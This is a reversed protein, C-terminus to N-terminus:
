TKALAAMLDGKKEFRAIATKITFKKPDLGPTVEKWDLPTSVTAQPTPRLVYPPVAHHGRANQIVDVYVRGDRENKLREVTALAPVRAIVNQATRM